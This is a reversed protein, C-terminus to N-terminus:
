LARHNLQDHKIKGKSPWWNLEGLKVAIAPVLICRIVFTDLLLGIVTAFGIQILQNIPSLMLAGFTGAMIIGCSTIIGGTTALARNVGTTVNGHQYEEKVRSMLFINYDVGLAVLLNFAFFPVSWSIGKGGIVDFVLYTIGMTASYSFLITLILYIPAVLSRLLLALVIFIGTLVFIMVKIFDEYTLNRLDDYVATAGGVYFEAGELNSGKISNKVSNSIKDISDLAEGTYPPVDLVIEMRTGAGSKTIYYEMGEKLDPYKDLTGEPLYFGSDNKINRRGKKLDGIYDSTKDIGSSMKGIGDNSQGLGDALTLLGSSGNLLKSQGQSQGQVLQELGDSIGTLGGQSNVLGGKVEGLGTIVQNLGGQSSDIGASLTPISTNTAGVKAIAESIKTLAQIYEPSSQLSPNSQGISELATKATLLDGQASTLGGQVQVLGGKISDLGPKIQNIGSISGQVGGALAGLGDNIKDVGENIDETGKTLQAMSKGADKLGKGATFVGKEMKTLGDQLPSFGKKIKGLGENLKILQETLSMDKLDKGLPQTASRVKAVEDIKKLNVTVDNLVQLSNTKWLSHDSKLILKVPLMEGQDFHNRIVTFGKIADNGPPLEQLEDFSRVIKTSFFMFPSLLIFSIVIFRGPKSTVIEALRGWFPSGHHDNSQDVKIKVPWFMKKGLVYMIAPTFTLVALLTVFVGIAVAPGTTKFLGFKAFIMCLFGIIVTGASSIVAESATGLTNRLASGVDNGRILEERFRSILLLCYDTGAGFLIAILFTETFASIKMGEQALLAVIGRSILFSLGITILPVLPAIPSRYIFLLIVVVLLVTVNGTTKMSEQITDSQEQSMAADGTINIALGKPADKYENHLQRMIENTSEKYPQSELGVFILIAKGDKSTMTEKLKDDTLPSYIHRITYKKKKDILRKELKKGYTKDSADLGKERYLTIVVNSNAAKDPFLNRELKAALVSDVNSPLFSEQDNKAIESLTPAKWLILTCLLIWFLIIPWRMKIILEGYRKFM